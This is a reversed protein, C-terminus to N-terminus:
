QVLRGYLVHLEMIPAVTYTGSVTTEFNFGVATGGLSSANIADLATKRGANDAFSTTLGATGANDSAGTLIATGSAANLEVDITTTTAGTDGRICVLRADLVVTGAPLTFVVEDFTGTMTTPQWRVTGWQYPSDSKFTPTIFSM